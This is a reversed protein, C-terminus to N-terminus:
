YSDGAGKLLEQGFGLAFQTQVGLSFLPHNEKPRDCDISRVFIKKFQFYLHCLFEM